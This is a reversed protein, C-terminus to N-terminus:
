LSSIRKELIDMDVRKGSEFYMDCLRDTTEKDIYRRHSGFMLISGEEDRDYRVTGHSGETWSIEGIKEKVSEIEQENVEYKVITRTWSFPWFRVKKETEIKIGQIIGRYRIRVKRLILPPLTDFIFYLLNEKCYVSFDCEVKIDDKVDSEKPYYSVFKDVKKDLSSLNLFNEELRENAAECSKQWLEIMKDKSDKM